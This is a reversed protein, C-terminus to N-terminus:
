CCEARAPEVVAVLVIWFSNMLGTNHRRDKMNTESDLDKMTIRILVNIMGSNNIIVM